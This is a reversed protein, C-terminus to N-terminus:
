REPCIGKYLDQTPCTKGSPLQCQTENELVKGGKIACYAGESKLYGTIKVGGQPCEGRFLAWEECQRNDLFFCIGYEGGDGRKAMHLTGGKEICHQSAPNALEMKKENKCGVLGGLLLLCFLAHKASLTKYLRGKIKLTKKSSSSGAKFFFKSCYPCMIKGEKGLNLFIAPHGLPGGDGDCRVPSSEVEIPDTLTNMTFSGNCIEEQFYIVRKFAQSYRKRGYSLQISRQGGSAFALPEFGRPRAMM